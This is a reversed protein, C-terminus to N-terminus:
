QLTARSGAADFPLRQSTYTSSTVSLCTTSSQAPATNRSTVSIGACGATCRSRGPKHAEVVSSRVKIRFEVYVRVEFGVRIRVMRVGVGVKGQCKNDRLVALTVTQSLPTGEM